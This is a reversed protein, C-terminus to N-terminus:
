QSVETLDPILISLRYSQSVLWYINAMIIRIEAWGKVLQAVEPMNGLRESAAEEDVSVMIVTASFSHNPLIDPSLMTRPLVLRGADKM